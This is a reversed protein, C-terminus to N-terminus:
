EWLWAAGRVGSADGWRPPRIVIARDDAFIYPAMRPPVERYLHALASLGGGLVIAEPDLINVVHALGRALRDVHRDLCARAAADGRDAAAAIDEAKMERGDTRTFEASLAPGSVWTEM